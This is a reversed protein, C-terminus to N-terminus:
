RRAGGDARDRGCDHVPKALPIVADALRAPIAGLDEAPLASVIGAARFGEVLRTAADIAAPRGMHTLVGVRRQAPRDAHGPDVTVQSLM